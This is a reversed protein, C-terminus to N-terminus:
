EDSTRRYEWIRSTNHAKTIDQGNEIKIIEKNIIIPNIHNTLRELNNLKLAPNTNIYEMPNLVGGWGSLVVNTGNSFADDIIQNLEEPVIDIISTSDVILFKEEALNAHVLVYQFSINKDPIYTITCIKSLLKHNLIYSKIEPVTHPVYLIIRNINETASLLSITNFLLTEGLMYHLLIPTGNERFDSLLVHANVKM